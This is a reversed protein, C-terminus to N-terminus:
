LLDHEEPIPYALNGSWQVAARSGLENVVFIEGQGLQRSFHEFVGGTPQYSCGDLLSAAFDISVPLFEGLVPAQATAQAQHHYVVPPGIEAMHSIGTNVKDAVSFRHADSLVVSQILGDDLM